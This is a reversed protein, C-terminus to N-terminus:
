RIIGDSCGAAVYHLTERGERGGEEEPPSKIIVRAAAEAESLLTSSIPVCALSMVRCEPLGRLLLRERQGKRRGAVSAGHHLHHDGILQIGAGGGEGGEKSVFVVFCGLINM